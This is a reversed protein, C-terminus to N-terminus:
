RAEGPQHSVAGADRVHSRTRRRLLQGWAWFWLGARAEPRAPRGPAHVEPCGQKKKAPELAAFYGASRIEKQLAAFSPASNKCAEDPCYGSSWYANAFRAPDGTAAADYMSPKVAGLWAAIGTEDDPFARFASPAKGDLMRQHLELYRKKKDNTKGQGFGDASVNDPMAEVKELDFWPPRWYDVTPGATVSLNGWNHEIVARGHDNEIFLLALLLEATERDPQQGFRRAYAAPVAAAM